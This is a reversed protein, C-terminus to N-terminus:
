KWTNSGGSYSNAAMLAVGVTPTAIVAQKPLLQDMDVIADVGVEMAAKRALFSRGLGAVVVPVTSALTKTYEYVRSLGAAVQKIQQAYIYQAMEFLEQGTLMDTDACVVRSIRAYAEPVTKGRGDATESNYDAESINGLILHIDGSQAFLESSVGSVSGHIPISQVIAAINTRLSGTYVLEGCMLKDLDTKGKAAVKGSAIPIISTSTSGVDVVVADRLHQAVLWGTAAWNAAAVSLPNDKASETTVMQADTNLVSILLNPFAEKVCGLIREVGERKTQYADSLEATMTVGVVDPEAALREKLTLLVSTLKDPNKWVPFYEVAVKVDAVKGNEAHLLVAKTNAGGIDFGLATVLSKQRL